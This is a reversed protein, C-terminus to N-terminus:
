PINIREVNKSVMEINPLFSVCAIATAPTHLHSQVHFRNIAQAIDCFGTVMSYISLSRCHYRFLRQFGFRCTKYLFYHISVSNFVQEKVSYSKTMHFSIMEILINNVTDCKAEREKRKWWNQWFFFIFSNKSCISNSAQYNLNKNQISCM